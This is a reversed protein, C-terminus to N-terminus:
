IKVFIKWAASMFLFRLLERICIQRTIKGTLVYAHQKLIVPPALNPYSQNAFAPGYLLHALKVIEMKQMKIIIHGEHTWGYKKNNSLFLNAGLM